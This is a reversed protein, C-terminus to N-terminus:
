PQCNDLDVMTSLFDDELERTERPLDPLGLDVRTSLFDDEHERTERVLDALDPLILLIDVRDSFALWGGCDICKGADHQVRYEHYCKEHRRCRCIQNTLDDLKIFSEARPSWTFLGDCGTCKDAGEFFRLKCPDDHRKCRCIEAKGPKPCQSAPTVSTTVSQDSNRAGSSASSSPASDENTFINSRAVLFDSGSNM